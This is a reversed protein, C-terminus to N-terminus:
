FVIFIKIIRKSKFSYSADVVNSTAVGLSSYLLRIYIKKEAKINKLVTGLDISAKYYGSKKADFQQIKDIGKSSLLVSLGALVPKNTKESNLYLQKIDNLTAGNKSAVIINQHLKSIEIYKEPSKLNSLAMYFLIGSISLAIIQM